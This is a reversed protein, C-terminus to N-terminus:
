QDGPLTQARARLCAATFALAPTLGHAEAGPLDADPNRLVAFMPMMQYGWREGPLMQLAASEPAGADLMRNFRRRRAEWADGQGTLWFVPPRPDLAKAAERLLDDQQDPHARSCRDALEVLKGGDTQESM